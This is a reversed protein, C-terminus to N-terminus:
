EAVIVRAPRVVRDGLRYGRQVVELVSGPEAEDRPQTLLAEHVHPDFPGDTEIEVLGEKVLAKRLSQEVLKVGDVLAAEEHREAAELARELDDLVPLVARVLRETAHGVLREQDRAARKRYNEFEAALRQLDALYEDRKVEAEELRAAFEDPPSGQPESGCPEPTTPEDLSAAVDGVADDHRSRTV